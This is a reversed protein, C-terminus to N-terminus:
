EAKTKTESVVKMEGDILKSVRHIIYTVDGIGEAYQEEKEVMVFEGGIYNYYVLCYGDAGTKTFSRVLNNEERKIYVSSYESIEELQKNGVFMKKGADWLWFLSPANGMSGGEYKHLQIDTFGDKNWDEFILGYGARYANVMTSLVDIKQYYDGGIEKIEMAYIMNFEPLYSNSKGTDEIGSYGHLTFEFANMDILIPRKETYLIPKIETPEFGSLAFQAKAWELDYTVTSPQATKTAACGTLALMVTILFFLYQSHKNFM